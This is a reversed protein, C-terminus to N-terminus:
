RTEGFITMRLVYCGREWARTGGVCSLRPVLSAFYSVTFLFKLEKKM